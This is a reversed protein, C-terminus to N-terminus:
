TAMRGLRVAMSNLLPPHTAIFKEAAKEGERIIMLGFPPHFATPSAQCRGCVGCEGVYPLCLVFALYVCVNQHPGRYNQEFHLITSLSLLKILRNHQTRSADSPHPSCANTLERVGCSVYLYFRFRLVAM